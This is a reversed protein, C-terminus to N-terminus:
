RSASSICAVMERDVLSPMGLVIRATRSSGEEDVV